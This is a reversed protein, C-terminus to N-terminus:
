RLPQIPRVLSVALVTQALQCSNRAPAEGDATFGAGMAQGSPLAATVFCRTASQEYRAPLSGFRGERVEGSPVQRPVDALGGTKTSVLGIVTGRSDHYTCTGGSDTRQEGGTKAYVTAFAADTSRVVKCPATETLAAPAQVTERWPTGGAAPVFKRALVQIVKGATECHQRRDGRNNDPEYVDVAISTFARVDLQVTCMQNPPPAFSYIRGHLGAFEYHELLYTRQTIMNYPGDVRIQAVKNAALNCGYATVGFGIAGVVAMDPMTPQLWECIRPGGAPLALPQDRPQGTFGSGDKSPRYTPIPGSSTGDDTGTGIVAQTCATTLLVILVSIAALATRAM